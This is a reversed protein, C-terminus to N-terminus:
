IDQDYNENPFYKEFEEKSLIHRADEIRKSPYKRKSDLYEVFLKKLFENSLTFFTFGGLHREEQNLIDLPYEGSGERFKLEIQDNKLYAPVVSLREVWKKGNKLIFIELKPRSNLFTKCIKWNNEECINQLLKEVNEFDEELCFLDVDPNSRYCEGITAANAVGGYIWYKINESQIKPLVIEFIPKIHENM